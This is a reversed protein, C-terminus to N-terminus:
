PTSSIFTVTEGYVFTGDARSGTAGAATVEVLDGYDSIEPHTYEATLNKDEHSTKSMTNAQRRSYSVFQFNHRPPPSRL